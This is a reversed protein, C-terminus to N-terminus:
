DARLTSAPDIRAARWAPVGSAVTAVGILLAVVGGYTVPDLPSVGFLLAAISRGAAVAGGAGLAVGLGVLTLGQRAVMSLIARRSAGLASRVGIEHTREAVGGSLVGYIGAAALLLAGLAFAEFLVLAFRREATSAALLEEMTAVRVIPQDADVSWVAQRVAPAISAVEAGGRVVLSMARDAFRWQAATTYVAATEDLALSEQRVDGVVGVVTYLPGTGIRLRRGIPDIGPLRREALSESVVAVRPSDGRDQGDLLRGKRLPIGMTEFYGPSVAYRFTGRTEGPDEPPGPEFHVGYLDHDGSLPLQSTLAAASVGPVNQVADLVRAFFRRTTGDDDFRHGSTQIKMTLLGSPDFGPAVGLLREVSRLLLGSSVLLVLALAVQAVVLARRTRLNGGASRASGHHLHPHPASGAAQLAPIAGVALGILTTLGLGFAFLGADVGIEGPRPLGPPGLAVLGRVGLAALVTGALGGLGALLLSETLLQRVLRRRPAGLAIRLALEGRRHVGRALVLNTVNVCAMALVLAVAGLIALLAPEVGRTLDDHLPVATFEVERGYTTPQQEDLVARGIGELEDAALRFGAGPHLRGVMRLHHGWARGQSVDYRLPAWVEASPALVDQFGSPMVGIVRHPTEDLTIRRGLVDPDAGFRRHWLEDSLVVVPAADPRDESRRFARGRAPAVGLVEFYDASVRQGDLREPRDSGTMAPQWPKLAAIGDFSPARGALERYMGFTGPVRSGDGGVEWIAALRESAPYPLPEFLVPRIVSFIATTGGIGLALTLATLLTFGPASLLRRAGYSLDAFFTEIANEWGYARVDERVNLPNGLERRAARRAEERSLGRARHAETAEELYHEVEEDIERDVSSRHLLTHLGHRLQRWPSM